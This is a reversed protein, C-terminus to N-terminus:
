EDTNLSYGEREAYEINKAKLNSGKEDPLKKFKEVEEDEKYDVTQKYKESIAISKNKFNDVLSADELEKIEGETYGYDWGDKDKVVKEKVSDYELSGSSIAEKFFTEDEKGELQPKINIEFFNPISIDTIKGSTFVKSGGTSIGFSIEIGHEYDFSWSSINKMYSGSGGTYWQHGPLVAGYGTYEGGLRDIHQKYNGQLYRSYFLHMVILIGVIIIILLSYEVFSQAKKNSYM